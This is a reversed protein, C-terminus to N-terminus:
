PDLVEFDTISYSPMDPLGNDFSASKPFGYTQDYEITVRIHEQSYAENYFFLAV